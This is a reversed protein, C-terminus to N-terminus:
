LLSTIITLCIDVTVFETALQKIKHRFNVLFIIEHDNWIFAQIM